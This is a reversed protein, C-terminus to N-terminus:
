RPKGGPKSGPADAQSLNLGTPAPSKERHQSSRLRLPVAVVNARRVAWSEGSPQASLVKGCLRPLVRSSPFPMAQKVLRDGPPLM